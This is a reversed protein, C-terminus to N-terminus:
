PLNGVAVELGFLVQFIPAAEQVDETFGEDTPIAALTAWSEVAFVNRETNIHEDDAPVLPCMHENILIDIAAVLNDLFHSVDGVAADRWSGIDLTYRAKWCFLRRMAICCFMGAPLDTYEPLIAAGVSDVCYTSDTHEGIARSFVARLNELAVACQFIQPHHQVHPLWNVIDNAYRDHWFHFKALDSCCFTTTATAASSMSRLSFRVFHSGLLTLVSCLSALLQNFIRPTTSALVLTYRAVGKSFDNKDCTM